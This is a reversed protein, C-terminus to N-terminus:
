DEWGIERATAEGVVSRALGPPMLARDPSVAIAGAMIEAHSQPYLPNARPDALGDPSRPLGSAPEYKDTAGLVHLVEHAIVLRNRPGMRPAAYANVITYRGKQVGVSRDLRPEGEASRYLMFVQIDPAPLGDGRQRRWAWWRTKLSWLAVAVRSDTAPVPPPAGEPVPALQFHAARPLDLGYRRAERTFFEGVERFDPAELRQVYALTEPKGDVPIPYVTIWVPDKWTALRAMGLWYNGAVIVLILLLVLIRFAKFLSM